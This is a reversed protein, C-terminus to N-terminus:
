AAKGFEQERWPSTSPARDLADAYRADLAAEEATQPRLYSICLTRGFVDDGRMRVDAAASIPLSSRLETLQQILHDLSVHDNVEVFDRIMRTM